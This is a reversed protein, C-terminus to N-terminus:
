QKRGIMIHIANANTSSMEHAIHKQDIATVGEAELADSLARATAFLKPPQDAQVGIVVNSVSVGLRILPQKGVRILAQGTGKWDLETWGATSLVIEIASVLSLIEPESDIIMIDYETGSFQKLKDVIRGRQEETLVRPAKFKALELIAEQAKQNAEAARENAGAIAARAEAAEKELRAAREHVEATDHQVRAMAEDHQRQTAAQEIDVLEDKRESYRHSVVEAIGLSLLAIIGAWFYFSSWWGTGAISDWGPILSM